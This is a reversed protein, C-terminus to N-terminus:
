NIKLSTIKKVVIYQFWYEKKGDTVDYNKKPVVSFGFDHFINKVVIYCSDKSKMDIRGWVSYHFFLKIKEYIKEKLEKKVVDNNLKKSTFYRDEENYDILVKMEDFVEKRVKEFKKNKKTKQSEKKINQEQSKEDVQSDKKIIKKPKEDITGNDSEDSSEVDSSVNDSDNDSEIKIDFLKNIKKPKDNTIELIKTVKKINNKQAVKPTSEMNSDSTLPKEKKVVKEVVAKKNLNKSM